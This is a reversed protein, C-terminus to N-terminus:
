SCVNDDVVLIRLEPRSVGHSSSRSSSSSLTSTVHESSEDDHAPKLKARQVLDLISDMGIWMREATMPTLVAVLRGGVGAAAAIASVTSISDEDKCFALVCQDGDLGVLATPSAMINADAVLFSSHTVSSEAMGVANLFERAADIHATSCNDMVGFTHIDGHVLRTCPHDALGSLIPAKLYLRFHSGNPGSRVLDLRGGLAAAIRSAVALGLRPSKSPNRQDMGFPTFVDAQQDVPIGSGTDIVDYVLHGLGDPGSPAALSTRLTITGSTTYAVANDVVATLAQKLLDLDTNLLHVGLPLAHVCIVEVAASKDRLATVAQDVLSVELGALSFPV